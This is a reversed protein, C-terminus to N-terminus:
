VSYVHTMQVHNLKNSHTLLTFSDTDTVSSDNRENLNQQHAECSCFNFHSHWLVVNGYIDM